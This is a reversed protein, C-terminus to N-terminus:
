WGGSDTQNKAVGALSELHTIRAVLAEIMGLAEELKGAERPKKTGQVRKLEPHQALVYTRMSSQTVFLGTDEKFIEALKAYPAEAVLEPNRSIWFILDTKVKASPRNMKKEEM